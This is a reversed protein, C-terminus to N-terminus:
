ARDIHEEAILQPPAVSEEAAKDEVPPQEDAPQAIIKYHGGCHSATQHLVCPAGAGCNVDAVYRGNEWKSGIRVGIECLCTAHVASGCDGCTAKDNDTIPDRCFPCHAAKPRIVFSRGVSEKVKEASREVFGKVLGAYRTALERGKITLRWCGGFERGERYTHVSWLGDLGRGRELDDSDKTMDQLFNAGNLAELKRLIHRLIAVDVRGDCAHGLLLAAARQKARRSNEHGLKRLEELKVHELAVCWRLAEAEREGLYPDRRYSSM